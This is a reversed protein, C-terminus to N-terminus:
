SSKMRDLIDTIDQKQEHPTSGVFNELWIKRSEHTYGELRDILKSYDEEALQFPEFIKIYFMGRSIEDEIDKDAVLPTHSQFKESIKQPPVKKRSPEKKEKVIYFTYTHTKTFDELIEKYGDALSAESIAVTEEDGIIQSLTLLAAAFWKKRNEITDEIKKPGGASFESILSAIYRHDPTSAIKVDTTSDRPISFIVKGLMTPGRTQSSYVNAYPYAKYVKRTQDESKTWPSRPNTKSTANAIVLIWNAEKFSLLHDEVEIVKSKKEVKPEEPFPVEKKEPLDKKESVDKPPDEKKEPLNKTITLPTDSIVTDIEIEKIKLAGDDGRMLKLNEEFDKERHTVFTMGIAMMSLIFVPTNGLGATTLLENISELNSYIKLSSLHQSAAKINLDEVYGKLMSKTYSEADKRLHKPCVVLFAWVAIEMSPPYGLGKGPNSVADIINKMARFLLYSSDSFLRSLRRPPKPRTWGCDDDFGKFYEGYSNKTEPIKPTCVLSIQEQVKTSLKIEVPPTIRPDPIVPTTNPSFGYINTIVNGMIRSTIGKTNTLRVLCYATDLLMGARKQWWSRYATEFKSTTPVDGFFVEEVARLSHRPIEVITDTKNRGGLAILQPKYRPIDKGQLIIRNNRETMRIRTDPSMGKFSFLSQRARTKPRKSVVLPINKRYARVRPPIVLTSKKIKKSKTLIASIIQPSADLRFWRIFSAIFIASYLNQSSHFETEVKKELTLVLKEFRPIEKVTESWVPFITEIWRKIVDILKESTSAPVLNYLVDELMEPYGVAMGEIEKIYHACKIIIDILTHDQAPIDTLDLLPAQFCTFRDTDSSIKSRAKKLYLDRIAEIAIGLERDEPDVISMGETELLRKKLRPHQDFKAPLAIKLYQNRVLSWDSRIQYNKNAGYVTKKILRGDEHFIAHRERTMMKALTISKAKRIEDELITGEFQKALLFHLVTPWIKEEIIFPHHSDLALFGYRQDTSKPIIIAPRMTPYM